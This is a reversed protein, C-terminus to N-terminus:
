KQTGAGDSEECKNGSRESKNERSREQDDAEFHGKLIVRWNVLHRGSRRLWAGITFDDDDSTLGRRDSPEFVM